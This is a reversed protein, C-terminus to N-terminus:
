VHLAIRERDGDRLSENTCSEVAMQAFVVLLDTLAGANLYLVEDEAAKALIILQGDNVVM